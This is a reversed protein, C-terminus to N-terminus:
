VQLLASIWNQLDAIETGCCKLIYFIRVASLIHNQVHPFATTSWCKKCTKLKFNCVASFFKLNRIHLKKVFKCIHLQSISGEFQPIVIESNFCLQTNGGYVRYVTHVQRPCPSFWPYFALHRKHSSV